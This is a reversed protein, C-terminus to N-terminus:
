ANLASHHVTVTYSVHDYSKCSGNLCNHLYHMNISDFANVHTPFPYEGYATFQDNTMVLEGNLASVTINNFDTTVEFTNSASTVKGGTQTISVTMDYNGEGSPTWTTYWYGNTPDNPYDTKLTLEQGDVNCKVEEFKLVNGHEIYASLM